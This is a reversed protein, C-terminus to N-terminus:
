PEVSMQSTVVTPDILDFETEPEVSVRRLEETFMPALEAGLSRIAKVLQVVSERDATTAYVNTEAPIGYTGPDFLDVSDPSEVSSTLVKAEFLQSLLDALLRRVSHAAARNSNLINVAKEYAGVRILRSLSWKKLEAAQRLAALEAAEGTAGDARLADVDARAPACAASRRM